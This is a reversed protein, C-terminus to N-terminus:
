LPGYVTGSSSRYYLRGAKAYLIVGSAPAVPDAGLNPLILGQSARAFAVRSQGATQAAARAARADALDDGLSRPYNPTAM